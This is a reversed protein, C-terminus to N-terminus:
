RSMRCGFPTNGGTNGRINGFQFWRTVEPGPRQPLKAVAEIMEIGPRLRGVADVAPDALLDKKLQSPSPIAPTAEGHTFLIHFANYQLFIVFFM